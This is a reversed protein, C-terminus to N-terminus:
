NPRRGRWDQNRPESRLKCIVNHLAREATEDRHEIHSRIATAFQAAKVEEVQDPISLVHVSSRDYSIKHWGDPEGNKVLKSRVQSPRLFLSRRLIRRGQFVRVYRDWTTFRPAVYFVVAGADEAKLLLDYQGDSEATDVSFRWFPKKLKPPPVSTDLRRFRQVAEGLKFQLLLATGPCTSLSMSAWSRNM